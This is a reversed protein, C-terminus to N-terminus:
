WTATGIEIVVNERPVTQAFLSIAFLGAVLTFLFKKM